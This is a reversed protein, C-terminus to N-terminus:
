QLEERRCGDRALPPSILLVIGGDACISDNPGAAICRNQSNASRVLSDRHFGVAVTSVCIEIGQVASSDGNGFSRSVDGAGASTWPRYGVAEVEAIWSLRRHVM